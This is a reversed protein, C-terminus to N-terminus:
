GILRWRRRDSGPGDGFWAVRGIRRATDRSCEIDARHGFYLNTRKINGYRPMIGPMSIGTARLCRLPRPAALLALPRKSDSLRKANSSPQPVASSSGDGNAVVSLTSEVRVMIARLSEGSM